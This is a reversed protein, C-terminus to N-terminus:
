YADQQVVDRAMFLKVAYSMSGPENDNNHRKKWKKEREREEWREGSLAMQIHALKIFNSPTVFNIISSEWSVRNEGIRSSFGM